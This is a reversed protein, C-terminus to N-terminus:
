HPHIIFPINLPYRTDIDLPNSMWQHIISSPPNMICLLYPNTHILIKTTHIETLLIDPIFVM